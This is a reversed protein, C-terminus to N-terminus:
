LCTFCIKLFKYRVLPKDIRSIFMPTLFLPIKADEADGLECIFQPDKEPDTFIPLIKSLISVHKGKTLKSPLYQFDCVQGNGFTYKQEVFGLIDIKIDSKEVEQNEQLKRKKKDKIPIHVFQKPPDNRTIINDITTASSKKIKETYFSDLNALKRSIEEESETTIQTLLENEHGKGFLGPIIEDLSITLDPDTTPILPNMQPPGIKTFDITNEQLLQKNKQSDKQEIKERDKKRTRINILFGCTKTGDASVSNCYPDNPRFKLDM